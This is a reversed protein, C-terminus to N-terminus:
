HTHAFSDASFELLNHDVGMISTQDLAQGNNGSILGQTNPPQWQFDDSPWPTSYLQDPLDPAIDQFTSIFQDAPVEQRIGSVPREPSVDRTVATSGGFSTANFLEDWGSLDPSPAPALFSYRQFFAAASEPRHAEQGTDARLDLGVAEALGARQVITCFEEYKSRLDAMSTAFLNPQSVIKEALPITRRTNNLASLCLNLNNIIEEKMEDDDHENVSVLAAIQIRISDLLCLGFWADRFLHDPEVKLIKRVLQTIHRAHTLSRERCQQLFDDPTNELALLSGAHGPMWAGFLECCSQHYWLHTMLFIDLHCSARFTFM